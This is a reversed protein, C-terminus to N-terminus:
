TSTIMKNKKSNYPLWRSRCTSVCEKGVRREESRLKVVGAKGQDYERGKWRSVVGQRDRPGIGEQLVVGFRHLGLLLADGRECTGGIDLNARNRVLGRHDEDLRRDIGAIGVNNEESGGVAIIM